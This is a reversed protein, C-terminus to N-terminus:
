GHRGVADLVADLARWQERALRAISPMAVAGGRAVTELVDRAAVLASVLDVQSVERLKATPEALGIPGAVETPVQVAPAASFDAAQPPSKPAAPESHCEAVAFLDQRASM